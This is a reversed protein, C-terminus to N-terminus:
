AAWSVDGKKVNGVHKSRSKPGVSTPLYHYTTPKARTRTQPVCNAAPPPSPIPPGHEYSSLHLHAPPYSADYISKFFMTLPPLKSSIAWSVDFLTEQAMKKTGTVNPWKKREEEGYM